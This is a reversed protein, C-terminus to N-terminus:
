GARKWILTQTPVLDDAESELTLVDGELMVTRRLEQGVVPPLSALQVKHTVMDGDVSYSGAYSLFPTELNFAGMGGKEPWDVHMMFASMRGDASYQIQGKPDPGFTDREEGDRTEKCSVLQWAGILNDQLSM